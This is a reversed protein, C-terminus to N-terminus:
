SAWQAYLTVDAAGLTLSAGAAYDTGSGDAKTNWKSFTKGTKTYTNAAVEVAEGAMGVTNAVATGGDAGNGDYKVAYPTEIRAFANKDLVAFGIFAEARLYVQNHGALDSGTNDPDGYPIVRVEIDRAYGWKFADFDGVIGLATGYKNVTGNVDCAIGRLTEPSAGWALEPFKKVGLSNVEASMGAALTKSLALGTVDYDGILVAADDINGEANGPTYLVRNTVATFDNTILASTVGDKPNVKAIAMMDLARALKKAFGETFPRLIEIQREESAIMFEDSVRVGYEVKLPRVQVPTMAAGGNVKAGNEGVLSAEGDMTFTFMDTGTFAVPIQKSLRALSSKGKVLDFVEQSLEAPFNTSKSITDGM